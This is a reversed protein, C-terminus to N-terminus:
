FIAQLVQTLMGPRQLRSLSGKGKIGIEANAIQDSRIQNRADVDQPRIVGVLQIQLTEDNTKLDRTGEIVLNGNPLIETVMCAVLTTATYTRSTTGDGKNSAATNLGFARIFGLIGGGDSVSSATDKKLDTKGADSTKTNEAVKVNIIDGINAPRKDAFWNTKDNWLSAAFVSESSYVLILGLCLTLLVIKRMM